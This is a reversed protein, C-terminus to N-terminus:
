YPISHSSRIESQLNNKTLIERTHIYAISDPAMDSDRDVKQLSPEASVIENVIAFNIRCCKGMIVLSQITYYHEKM